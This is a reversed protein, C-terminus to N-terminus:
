ITVGIDIMERIIEEINGDSHYWIQVDPKISRTKEYVKEM